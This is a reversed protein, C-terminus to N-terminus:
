VIRRPPAIDPNLNLLPTKPSEGSASPTDGWTLYHYDVKLEVIMALSYGM